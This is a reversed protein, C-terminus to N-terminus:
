VPDSDVKRQKLAVKPSGSPLGSSAVKSTVATLELQDNGVYLDVADASFPREMASTAPMTLSAGSSLAAVSEFLEVCWALDSGNVQDYACAETPSRSLLSHGDRRQYTMAKANSM